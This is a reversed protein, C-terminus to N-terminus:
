LYKRFKLAQKSEITFTISVRRLKETLKFNESVGKSLNQAADTQLENVKGKYHDYVLRVEHFYKM